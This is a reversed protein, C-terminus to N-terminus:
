AISVLTRSHLKFSKRLERRRSELTALSRLWREISIVHIFSAIQRVKGLLMEDVAASLRRANVYERQCVLLPETLMHQERMLARCLAEDFTGKSRRTRIREPLIGNMARRMLWRDRGPQALQNMPLSLIFEILRQHAYPHSVYIGDTRRFYGSSLLARFSRISFLRIRRSAPQVGGEVKLGLRYNRRNIWSRAQPTSWTCLEKIDSPKWDLIPLGIMLPSLGEVMLVRWLPSGSCQSWDRVLKLATLFRGEALCDAIEPSGSDGSCFLEDGGVGNLLVRAGQRRMFNLITERTGPTLHSTSPSGSFSIDNLGLTMAQAAESIHVGQRGRASEVVQIFFSEDCDHSDEFTYSVSTLQEPGCGKDRLIRDAMLFITSSDLGGSLECWIPGKARLRDNVANRIQERCAEEYESDSRLQLTTIRDPHWTSVAPGIEGSLKVKIHTGPVVVSVNRFPSLDIDPQYYIFGIAYDDNVVPEIGTKVILDDLESSWVLFSNEIVYFLPRTGCLSRVLFLHGQKKDWLALAYEGIISEFADEGLKEYATLVLQADSVRNFETLGIRRALEDRQDLRGDFTVVIGAPSIRPQDGYYDEDTIFLGRFGMGLPGDAYVSCSDPGRQDLEFLLFDLDEERIKRGDFALMGTQVSM